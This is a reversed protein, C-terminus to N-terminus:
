TNGAHDVCPRADLALDARQNQILTGQMIKLSVADTTNLTHYCVMNVLCYTFNAHVMDRAPTCVAIYNNM